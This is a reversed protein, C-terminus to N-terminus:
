AFVRHGDAAMRIKEITISGSRWTEGDVSYASSDFVTASVVIGMSSPEWQMRSSADLLYTCTHVQYYMYTGSVHGERTGGSSCGTWVCM